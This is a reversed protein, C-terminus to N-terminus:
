HRALTMAADTMAPSSERSEASAAPWRTRACRTCLRDCNLVGAGVGPTVRGGVGPGNVDGERNRLTGGFANPKAAAAYVGAGRKSRRM